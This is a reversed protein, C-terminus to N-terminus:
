ACPESSQSPRDANEKPKIDLLAALRAAWPDLTSYMAHDDRMQDIVEQLGTVLQAHQRELMSIVTDQVLLDHQTRAATGKAYPHPDPEYSMADLPVPPPTPQNVQNVTAFELHGGCRHCRMSASFGQMSDCAGCVWLSM